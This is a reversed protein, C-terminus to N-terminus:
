SFPLQFKIFHKYYMKLFPNIPHVDYICIIVNVVVANIYMLGLCSLLEKTCNYFNLSIYTQWRKVLKKAESSDPRLHRNQGFLKLIEAGEGKLINWQVDDYGATKKNAKKTHTQRM